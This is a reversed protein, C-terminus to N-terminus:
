RKINKKQLDWKMLFNKKEEETGNWTIISSTHNYTKGKINEIGWKAYLTFVRAPM